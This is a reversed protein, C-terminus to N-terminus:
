LFWFFKDPTPFKRDSRKFLGSTQHFKEEEIAVRRELIKEALIREEEEERQKKAWEGVSLNKNSGKEAKKDKDM